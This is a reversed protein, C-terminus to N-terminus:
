TSVRLGQNLRMEKSRESETQFKKTGHYILLRENSSKTRLDKWGTYVRKVMAKPGLQVDTMTLIQIKRHLM